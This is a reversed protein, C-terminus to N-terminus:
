YGKWNNRWCATRNKNSSSIIQSFIIYILNTHRIWSNCRSFFHLMNQSRKKQFVVLAIQCFLSKSPTHCCPVLPQVSLSVHTTALVCPGLSSRQSFLFFWYVFLCCKPLFYVFSLWFSSSIVTRIFYETLGVLFFGKIVNYSRKRLNYLLNGLSSM